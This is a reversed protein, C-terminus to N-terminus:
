VMKVQKVKTCYIKLQIWMNIESNSWSFFITLFLKTIGHFAKHIVHNYPFFMLILLRMIKTMSYYIQIAVSLYNCSISNQILYAIEIICIVLLIYLCETIDSRTKSSVSNDILILCWLYNWSMIILISFM